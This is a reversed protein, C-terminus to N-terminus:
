IIIIMIMLSSIPPGAAMVTPPGATQTTRPSAVPQASLEFTPDDGAVDGDSIGRDRFTARNQEEVARGVAVFALVTWVGALQVHPPM